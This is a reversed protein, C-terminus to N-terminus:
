VRCLSTHSEMRRMGKTDYFCDSGLVIDQPALELVSTSFIGWTLEMLTIDIGPKLNNLMCSERLHDLLHSDDTAMESLTVLAGCKAAM